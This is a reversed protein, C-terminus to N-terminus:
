HPKPKNADDQEYSSYNTPVTTSSIEGVEFTQPVANAAVKKIQKRPVYNECATAFYDWYEKIPLKSLFEIWEHGKRIISRLISDKELLAKAHERFDGALSNNAPLANLRAIIYDEAAKQEDLTMKRPM